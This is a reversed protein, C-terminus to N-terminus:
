PQVVYCICARARMTGRRAARRAAHRAAGCGGSERVEFEKRLKFGEEIWVERRVIWNLSCKLAARYLRQVRQVHGASLAKTLSAM